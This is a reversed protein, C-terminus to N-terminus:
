ETPPLLDEIKVEINYKKALKIIAILLSTNPFQLGRRIRSVSVQSCGLISAIQMQNLDSEFKIKKIVQEMKM